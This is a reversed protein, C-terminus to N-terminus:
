FTVAISTFINTAVSGSPTFSAGHHRRNPILRWVAYLHRARYRASPTAPNASRSRAAFRGAPRILASSSSRITAARFHNNSYPVSPPGADTHDNSVSWPPTPTGDSAVIQRTNTRRPCIIGSGFFRGFTAACRNTRSRGFSHQCISAV